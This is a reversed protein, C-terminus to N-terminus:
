TDQKSLSFAKYYKEIEVPEFIAFKEVDQRIIIKDYPKVKIKKAKVIQLKETLNFMNKVEVKEFITRVRNTKILNKVVEENTTYFSFLINDKEPLELINLDFEKIIVIM